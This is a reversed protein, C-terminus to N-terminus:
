TTQPPIWLIPKPYYGTGWRRGPADLLQSKASEAANVAEHIKTIQACGNFRNDVLCLIGFFITSIHFFPILLTRVQYCLHCHWPLTPTRHALSPLLLHHFIREWVQQLISELILYTFNIHWKWTPFNSNILFSAKQGTTPAMICVGM